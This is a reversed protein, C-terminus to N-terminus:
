YHQIFVSISISKSTKMLLQKVKINRKCQFFAKHIVDYIKNFSKPEIHIKRNAATMLMAFTLFTYIFLKRVCIFSSVFLQLKVSKPVQRMHDYSQRSYQQKYGSVCSYTHRFKFLTKIKQGQHFIQPFGRPSFQNFGIQLVHQLLM